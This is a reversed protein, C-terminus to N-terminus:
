LILYDIDGQEEDLYYGYFIGRTYARYHRRSIHTCREKGFYYNYNKKNKSLILDPDDISSSFYSGM